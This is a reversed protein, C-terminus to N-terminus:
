EETETLKELEAEFEELKRIDEETEDLNNFSTPELDRFRETFIEKKINTVQCLRDIDLKYFTVNSISGGEEIKVRKRDVYIENNILFRIFSKPAHLYKYLVTANVYLYLKSDKEEFLAVVYKLSSKARSPLRDIKFIKDETLIKSIFIKFDEKQTRNEFPEIEAKAIKENIKSTIIDEIKNRIYSLSPDTIGDFEKIKSLIKAVDVLTLFHYEKKPDELSKVYKDIDRTKITIIARGDKKIVIDQGTYIEVDIIDKLLKVLEDTELSKGLEELHKQKFEEIKKKDPKNIVTKLDNIFEKNDIVPALFDIFALFEDKLIEQNAYHELLTALLTTPNYVYDKGKLKMAIFTILAQVRPDLEIYSDEEIIEYKNEIASSEIHNAFAKNLINKLIVHTASKLDPPYFLVKKNDYTTYGVGWIALINHPVVGVVKQSKAKKVVNYLEDSVYIVFIKDEM